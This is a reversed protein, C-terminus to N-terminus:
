MNTSDYLLIAMITQKQMALLGTEELINVDERFNSRRDHTDGGLSGTSLMCTLFGKSYKFDIFIYMLEEGDESKRSILLKMSPHIGSM